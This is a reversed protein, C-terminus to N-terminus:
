SRSPTMYTDIFNWIYICVAFFLILILGSQIAEPYTLEFICFDITRKSWAVAHGKAQHNAADSQSM